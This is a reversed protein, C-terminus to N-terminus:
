CKWSSPALSYILIFLCLEAFGVCSCVTPTGVEKFTLVVFRRGRMEGLDEGRSQRIVDHGKRVSKHVIAWAADTYSSM